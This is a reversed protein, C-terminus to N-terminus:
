QRAKREDAMTLVTAKRLMWISGCRAGGLLGSAALRQTHRKSLGLVEAAEAVGIWDGHQGGCDSEAPTLHADEHRAQSMCARHLTTVAQQLLPSAGLGDRHRRAILALCARYLLATAQEGQIM